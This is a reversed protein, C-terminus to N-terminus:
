LMFILFSHLDVDQLIFGIFFVVFTLKVM